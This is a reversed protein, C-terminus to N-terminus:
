VNKEIKTIGFKTRYKKNHPFMNQSWSRFVNRQPKKTKVFTGLEQKDEFLNFKYLIELERDEIVNIETKNDSDEFSWVFFCIRSKATQTFQFKFAKEM